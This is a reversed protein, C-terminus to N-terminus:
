ADKRIEKNMSYAATRKWKNETEIHLNIYIEKYDMKRKM